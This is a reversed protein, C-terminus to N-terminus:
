AILWLSRLGVWYGLVVLVAFGSGTLGKSLGDLNRRLCILDRYMRVVGAFETARSWDIPDTDRFWEDELMEQGQFLM